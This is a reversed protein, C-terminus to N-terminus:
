PVKVRELAHREEPFVAVVLVGVVIVVLGTVRAHSPLFRDAGEVDDRERVVRLLVVDRTLLLVQCLGTVVRCEVDRTLLLVQCLGTVM